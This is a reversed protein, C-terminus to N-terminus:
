LTKSSGTSSMVKLATSTSVTSAANSASDKVNAAAILATKEKRGFSIDADISHLSLSNVRRTYPDGECPSHQILSMLPGDPPMDLAEVSMNEM